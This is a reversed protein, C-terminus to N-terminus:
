ECTKASVEWFVLIFCSVVSWTHSRLLFGWAESHAWQSPFYSKSILSNFLISLPGALLPAGEKLLRPSVADPGCAKNVQLNKGSPECPSSITYWHNTTRGDDVSEFKLIESALQGFCNKQTDDGPHSFSQMLHQPLNSLFEPKWPLLFGGNVQLPFFSTEM